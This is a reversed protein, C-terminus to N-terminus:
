DINKLASVAATAEALLPLVGSVNWAAIGAMTRVQHLVAPDCPVDAIAKGGLSPPDVCLQGPLGQGIPVGLHLGLDDVDRPM